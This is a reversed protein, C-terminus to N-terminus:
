LDNKNQANNKHESLTLSSGPFHLIEGFRSFQYGLIIIVEYNRLYTLATDLVSQL